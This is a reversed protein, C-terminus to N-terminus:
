INLEYRVTFVKCTEGDTKAVERKSFSPKWQVSKWSSEEFIQWSFELKMLVQCFFRTNYTFTPLDRTRNEIADNSSKMSMIWEAASHRQLSLRQCSHSGPINGPPPTPPIHGTHVAWLRVVKMHRNDQFRPAEVEQFGWIAKGTSRQVHLRIYM